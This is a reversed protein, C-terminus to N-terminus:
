FPRHPKPVRSLWRKASARLRLRAIHALIKQKELSPRMKAIKERCAKIEAEIDEATQEPRTTNM